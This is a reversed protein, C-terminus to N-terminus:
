IEGLGRLYRDTVQIGSHFLLGQGTKDFNQAAQFYMIRAFICLPQEIHFIEMNPNGTPYERKAKGYVPAYIFHKYNDAQGQMILFEWFALLNIEHDAAGLTKVIHHLSLVIGRLSDCITDKASKKNGAAMEEFVPYLVPCPPM